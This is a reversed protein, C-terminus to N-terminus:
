LSNFYQCLLFIKHHTNSIIIIYNFSSLMGTMGDYCKCNPIHNLVVCQANVGCVGPCPDSCKNKVCALNRNCDNDSECERRCGKYPDGFFGERCFCAGLPVNFTLIKM